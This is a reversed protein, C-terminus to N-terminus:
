DMGETDVAGGPRGAARRKVLAMRDKNVNKDGNLRTLIVNSPQIAIPPTQNNTKERTVREVHIVYRKRYVATIKGDRGKVTQGGRVIKVEDGRRLPLRRVQTHSPARSQAHVVRSDCAAATAGGRSVGNYKERLEKSLHASMRLRRETSPAQFHAKRSKRRSSSVNNSHKM